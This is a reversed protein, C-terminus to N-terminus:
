EIMNIFWFILNEMSATYKKAQIIANQLNNVQRGSGQAVEEKGGGKGGCAQCPKPYGSM